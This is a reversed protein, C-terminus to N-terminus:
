ELMALANDQWTKIQADSKRGILTAIEQSHKGLLDDITNIGATTLKEFAAKGIGKVEQVSTEKTFIPEPKPEPKVEPGPVSEPKPEVKPKVEKKVPAAKKVPKKAVKPKEKRPKPKPIAIVSPTKTMIQGTEMCIWLHQMKDASPLFREGIDYIAGPCSEKHNAKSVRYKKPIHKKLWRKGIIFEEGPRGLTQKWSM